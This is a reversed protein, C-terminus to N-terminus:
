MGCCPPFGVKLRRKSIASRILVSDSEVERLSLLVKNEIEDIQWYVSLKLPHSKGKIMVFVAQLFINIEKVM